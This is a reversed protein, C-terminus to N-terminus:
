EKRGSWYRAREPVIEVYVSARTERAAYAEFAPTVLEEAHQARIAEVGAVVERPAEGPAYARAHGEVIANELEHFLRGRDAVLTVRPEHRINAVTTNELTDLVVREGDWHFWFPAVNPRGTASVTAVRVFWEEELLRRVHEPLERASM